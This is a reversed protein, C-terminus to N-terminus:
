KLGEVTVSNSHQNSDASNGAKNCRWIKFGEFYRRLHHFDHPLVLHSVSDSHVSLHKRSDIELSGPVAELCPLIYIDM